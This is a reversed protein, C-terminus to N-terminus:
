KGIMSKLVNQRTIIGVVKGKELVPVRNIRKEIMLTAIEEIPTNVDVTIVKTTMMDKVKYATIKKLEEQFKKLSEVFITSDLIQVVAPIHIQKDRYILDGDSIIGKLNNDADVVPVGSIGKEILLRAVDEVSEDENITVVNKEMIDKALM